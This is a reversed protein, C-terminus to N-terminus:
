FYQNGVPDSGTDPGPSYNIASVALPGKAQSLGPLARPEPSQARPEPSQARPEPSTEREETKRVHTKVYEIRRSLIVIIKKM